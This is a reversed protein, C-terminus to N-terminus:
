METRRRRQDLYLRVALYAAAGVIIGGRMVYRAVDGSFWRLSLWWLVGVAALGVFLQCLKWPTWRSRWDAWSQPWVSQPSGGSDARAQSPDPRNV